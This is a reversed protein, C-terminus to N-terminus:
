EKQTMLLRYGSERSKICFNGFVETLVAPLTKRGIKSQLAGYAMGCAFGRNIGLHQQPKV